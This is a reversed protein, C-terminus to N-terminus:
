AVANKTKRRLGFFGLLAPAFMFLAAPVPVAPTVESIFASGFAQGLGNGSYDRIFTGLGTATDISLISTGSLGYLNAGDPSALGYVNAFGTNGVYTGSGNATDRKVLSDNHSTTSSLFLEGGIFALDGSSNSGRSSGIDSALGTGTNLSYLVGGGAGYLTGDSGFVLANLSGRGFNGVLTSVASTKDITYLSGFTIGWLNGSADFAIDTMTRGMRGIVSVSGTGVDVTGLRGSSDGVWLVPAASATFPLLLFIAFIAVYYKKFIKLM